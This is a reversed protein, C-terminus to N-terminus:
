RQAMLWDRVIRVATRELALEPYVIHYAFSSGLSQRFPSVLKGQQLDKEVFARRVLAFGFGARAAELAGNSDPAIIPGKNWDVATASAAELWLRWDNRDVDHILTEGELCTVDPSDGLKEGLEPSCVVLYDDEILKETVLGAYHGRGHRVALDIGDKEFDVLRATTGIRLQINGHRQEFGPLRPMLWQMAFGTTCSLSVIAGGARARVAHTAARILRFATGLSAFYEAGAETLELKRAKREFLALGLAAELERVHLSVAGPTVGLESAAKTMSRYRAAM